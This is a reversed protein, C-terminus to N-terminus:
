PCATIARPTGDSYTGWPGVGCAHRGRVDYWLANGPVPLASATTTVGQSSVLCTTGVSWIPIEEARGQVLDHVSSSGGTTHDWRLTTKDPDFGIHAIPGPVCSPPGVCTYQCGVAPNCGETTCPDTDSCDKPPNSCLGTGSDCVGALHCADSPTCVVPTGGCTGSSCTDPTTCPDADNCPTAHVCNGACYLAGTNVVTTSTDHGGWVLMRGISSAYVATHSFRKGPVNAGSGTTLSTVPWTNTAPVFRGGNAGNTEVSTGGWVIMDSGTYVSTHIQRSAPGAPMTSWTNGTPNYRAGGPQGGWVIMASGTWLATHLIRPTPVNAGTSTALWTDTAPDYRGGTNTITIGDGGGWVIMQSGTWVATHEYRITPVNAGLSTATWADTVPKYRGGTNTANIDLLGGWVIMESGTWVATHLQCAPPAGTTSTATWTNAAPNYRSGTSTEAGGSQEGGWVIVVSGTWVMSHGDRPTPANSTPTATWSDTAPDYRGGTNVV